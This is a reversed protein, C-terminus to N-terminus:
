SPTSRAAELFDKWPNVPEFAYCSCLGGFPDPAYCVFGGDLSGSHVEKYHGCCCEESQLVPGPGSASM